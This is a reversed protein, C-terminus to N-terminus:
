RKVRLRRAHMDKLMESQALLEDVHAKMTDATEEQSQVAASSFNKRARAAFNAEYTWAEWFPSSSKIADIAKMASTMPELLVDNQCWRWEAKTSILEMLDHYGQAASDHCKKLQTLKNLLATIRKKEQKADTPKEAAPTGQLAAAPTADNKLKKTPPTM